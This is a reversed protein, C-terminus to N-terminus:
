PDKSQGKDGDKEDNNKAYVRRVKFFDYISWPILILSLVRNFLLHEQMDPDSTFWGDYFCWAGFSFLLATFIYPNIGIQKPTKEEVEKSM